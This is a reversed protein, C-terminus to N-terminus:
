DPCDSLLDWGRNNATDAMQGTDVRVTNYTITEWVNDAISDTASNYISCLSVNGLDHLSIGLAISPDLRTLLYNINELQSIREEIQTLRDRGM